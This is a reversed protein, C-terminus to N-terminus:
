ERVAAITKWSIGLIDRMTNGTFEKMWQSEIVDVVGYLEGSDLDKIVRAASIRGYMNVAILLDIYGNFGDEATAPVAIAIVEEGQKALYAFRDRRLGLLHLNILKKHTGAAPLLFTDLVLDNNFSDEEFFEYLSERDFAQKSALVEGKSVLNLAILSIPFLGILIGLQFSKANFSSLNM